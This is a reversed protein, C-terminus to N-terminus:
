LSGDVRHLRGTHAFCVMILETTAVGWLFSVCTGLTRSEQFLDQRRDWEPDDLAAYRVLRSGPIGHGIFGPAGEHDGWTAYGIIRRDALELVHDDSPVRVM